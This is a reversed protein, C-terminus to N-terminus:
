NQINNKSKDAILPIKIEFVTSYGGNAEDKLTLTGGHAMAIKQSISLGLGSGSGSREESGRVFPKFINERQSQPIGIGNDAIDIAAYNRGEEQTEFVSVAMVTGLSNYKITNYVINDIARKLQSSDIRCSMKIEPINAIITFGAIEIEDYREALYGRMFECIDMTVPALTYQPHEVKSYEHFSEVLYTLEASKQDIKELYENVRDPPVKGDRIAKTYGSIVTIPTKLDHSIDALLQKREADLRMREKESDSLMDAMKDINEGIKRMEWPGDMEGIREESGVSIGNVASNLRILPEKIKKNLRRLFLVLVIIYLPIVLFYIRDAQNSMEKYTDFTVTESLAILYRNRGTEKYEKDNIHIKMMDYNHFRTGLLCKIESETYSKRGDDFGGIKVNYNEDLVMTEETYNGNHDYDYKVILLEKSGDARILEESEIYSMDDYLQILELESKKFDRPFINSSKYLIKGEDDTVAISGKNGLYKSVNIEEYKGELLERDAMISEYDPFRSLWNYYKSNLMFVFALILIMTVTFALFDRALVVVLKDSSSNNKM